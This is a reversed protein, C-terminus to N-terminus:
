KLPANWRQGVGPALYLYWRKNTTLIQSGDPSIDHLPGNAPVLENVQSSGNFFREGVFVRKAMGFKDAPRPSQVRQFVLTGVGKGHQPGGAPRSQAAMAEGRALLQTEDPSLMVSDVALLPGATGIEKGRRDFMTVQSLASQGPRWAVAGSRSVSFDARALDGAPSSAVGEQVLEADGEMKRGRRNLKQSYLNDNRVFLIRGGGAPTYSVATDNKMLLVPNVAKGDRLTALYVEGEAAGEPVLLFLFDESGALFQPYEYRGAKMGPVDVLKVEHQSAPVAYLKDDM